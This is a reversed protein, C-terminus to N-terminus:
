PFLVFFVHIVSHARIYIYLVIQFGDTGAGSATYLVVRKSQVRDSMHVNLVSGPWFLGSSPLFAAHAESVSQRGPTNVKPEGKLSFSRHLSTRPPACPSIPFAQSCLLGSRHNFSSEWLVTSM